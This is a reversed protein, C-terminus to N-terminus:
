CVVFRGGAEYGCGIRGAFVSTHSAIPRTPPHMSEGHCARHRVEVSATQFMHEDPKDNRCWGGMDHRSFGLVHKLRRWCAVVAPLYYIHMRCPVSECVYHDNTSVLMWEGRTTSLHFMMPSPTHQGNDTVGYVCVTVDGSEIGFSSTPFGCLRNPAPPRAKWFRRKPLM